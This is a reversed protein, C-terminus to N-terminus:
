LTKKRLPPSGVAMGKLLPLRLPRAQRMVGRTAAIASNTRITM